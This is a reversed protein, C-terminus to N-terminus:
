LLMVQGACFDERVPWRPSLAEIVAMLDDLEAMADLTVSREPALGTESAFPTEPPKRSSNM